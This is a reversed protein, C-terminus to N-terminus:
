KIEELRYKNWIREHLYYGSSKAIIEIGAGSGAIVPEKLIIFLIIFTDLSALIRWTITKLFSRIQTGKRPRNSFSWGKEHLYYLLMKTFFEIGVVSLGILLRSTLIFVIAITLFSAAIRWTITKALARHKLLFKNIM